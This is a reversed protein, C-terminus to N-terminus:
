EFVEEWHYIYAGARGGATGPLSYTVTVSHLEPTYKKDETSLYAKYQFYRNDSVDIDEGDSDTFYDDEETTGNPGVFDGTPPSSSGSCVRFKLNCVGRKCHELIESASLVRNYIAVEDITGDFFHLNQWEGITLSSTTSDIPGNVFNTSKSLQGNIYLKVTNGTTTDYTAAVHTWTGTSITVDTSLVSFRGYGTEPDKANFRLFSLKRETSVFFWYGLSKSVISNQNVTSLTDPKIWAEITITNRINLSNDNGCNVYDNIGDFKGGSTNFKGTAFAVGGHGTGNNENGSSDTWNDDNMHWLGMMGSEPELEEGYNADEEWCIKNWSVLQGADKVSSVYTGSTRYIDIAGPGEPSGEEYHTHIEEETLVRNYIAVEDITGDFFHLNGRDGILLNNSSSDIPGNLSVARDFQGNIYFTVENPVSDDYTVVAHTWTGTPITGTSGVADWIGKFRLFGLVGTNALYFWYGTANDSSRDVISAQKTSPPITDPKIWAEISLTNRLNLSADNGCNVYDNSGNFSGCRGYKGGAVTIAGYAIGHNGNGSSDIVEDATGDWSAEDMHYLVVLGVTEYETKVEEESLARNCVKVEDILGNAYSGKNYHSGILLATNSTHRIKDNRGSTASSNVLAGNIYFIPDDGNTHIIAIHSFGDNISSNTRWTWQDEGGSYEYIRFHVKGGTDIYVAVFHSHDYYNAWIYLTTNPTPNVWASISISDYQELDLSPDFPIEVYDNNGDFSGCHGIKGDVFTVGGHGTGDNGKGSSDEWNDEMKWYGVLNTEARASSITLFLILCSVALLQLGIASFEKSKKRM